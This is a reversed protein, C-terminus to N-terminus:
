NSSTFSNIVEQSTGEQYAVGEREARRIKRQICDKNFRDFVEGASRQALRLEHKIFSGSARFGTSAALSIRFPRLEAYKCGSRNGFDAISSMLKDLGASSNALPECHDSFPLSVLRSGTLVSKVRCLAVGNTLEGEPPCTTVVVPEYGYTRQLATLWEPTHFVSASPHKALLDQWRHDTLPNLTHAPM